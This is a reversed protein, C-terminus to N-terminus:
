SEVQLQEGRQQLAATYLTATVIAPVLMLTADGLFLLTGLSLRKSAM